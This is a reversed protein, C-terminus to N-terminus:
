PPRKLCLYTPIEVPPKTAMNKKSGFPSAAGVAHHFPLHTSHRPAFDQVRRPPLGPLPTLFDIAVVPHSHIANHFYRVTTNNKVPSCCLPNNQPKYPLYRPGHSIQYALPGGHIKFEMWSHSHLFSISTM